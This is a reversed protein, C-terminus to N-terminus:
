VVRIKTELFYSDNKEFGDLRQKTQLFTQLFRLYQCEVIHESPTIINCNSNKLTKIFNLYFAFVKQIM